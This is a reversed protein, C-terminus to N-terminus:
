KLKDILIRNIEALAQRTEKADSEIDAISTRVIAIEVTLGNISEQLKNMIESGHDACVKQDKFKNNIYNWMFLLVGAFVIFVMLSYRSMSEDVVPIIDYIM